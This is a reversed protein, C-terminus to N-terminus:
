IGALTYDMRHGQGGGLAHLRKKAVSDSPDIILANRYCIIANHRLRKGDYYRGFEVWALSNNPEIQIARQIYTLAKVSNMHRLSTGARYAYTYRGSNLDSARSFHHAAHGTLTDSEMSGSPMDKLRNRYYMGIEFHVEADNPSEELAANLVALAQQHEGARVLPKFLDRLATIRDPQPLTDTATNM